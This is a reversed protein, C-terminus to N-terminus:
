IANVVYAFNSYNRSFFGCFDFRHVDFNSEGGPSIRTGGVRSEGFKIVSFTFDYM